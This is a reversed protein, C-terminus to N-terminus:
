HGYVGSGLPLGTARNGGTRQLSLRNVLDALVSGDEGQNDSEMLIRGACLASPVQEDGTLLRDWLAASLYFLVPSDGAGGRGVGLDALDPCNWVCRFDGGGAGTLILQLRTGGPFQEREDPNQQQVWNEWWSVAAPDPPVAPAQPVMQQRAIEMLDASAVAPCGPEGTKQLAIRLQSQDFVPDDRFYPTFITVFQEVIESLEGWGEAPRRRRAADVPRPKLVDQFAALLDRLPTGQPNTLHYTRGHLDPHRFIQVLTRAVWRVDVINKREAGTIGVSEFLDDLNVEGFRQTLLRLVNFAYYITRDGLLLSGPTSDVVISPRYVTVQEFGASHVLQEATLKSQEYDNSFTQGLWGETEFVSGSRLGCVYASSVDHFQRIGADRCIQVLERTGHVNTRFPENDPHEAAPKFSLSAASHIVTRCHAALWRRDRLSLGLGSHTLDGELIVPRPFRRGTGQEFRRLIQEVRQEATGTRNRRVLVATPCRSRLLDVLLFQGLLGTAGTLLTTGDRDDRVHHEQGRLAGDGM